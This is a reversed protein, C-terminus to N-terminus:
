SVPLEVRETTRRKQTDDTCQLKMYFCVSCLAYLFVRFIAVLYFVVFVAYFLMVHCALLAQSMEFVSIWTFVVSGKPGLVFVHTLHTMQLLIMYDLMLSSFQIDYFKIYVQSDHFKTIQPHSVPPSGSLKLNELNCIFTDNTDRHHHVAKHYM